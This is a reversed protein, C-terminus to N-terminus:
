NFVEAIMCRVSGGGCKEIIDVSSSIIKSHKEIKKIQIYDLSDYATQSMVIFSDNNTELEIM